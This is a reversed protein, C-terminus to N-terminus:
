LVGEVLSWLFKHAKVIIILTILLCSSVFLIVIVFVFVIVIVIVIVNLSWGLLAIRSVHSRQSIQDSRHPRMVQGFYVYLVGDFLLFITCFLFFYFFSFSKTRPYGGGGVGGVCVCVGGFHFM